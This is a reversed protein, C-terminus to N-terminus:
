PIPRRRHSGPLRVMRALSLVPQHSLIPTRRSPVTLSIGGMSKACGGVTATAGMPGAGVPQGSWAQKQIPDFGRFRRPPAVVRIPDCRERHDSRGDLAVRGTSCEHDVFPFLLGGRRSDIIRLDTL